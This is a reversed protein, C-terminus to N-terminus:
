KDMAGVKLTYITDVLGGDFTDHPLEWFMIGDLGEEMVYRTKRAISRKNDFTAFLKKSANYAYPAQATEDWYHTYGKRESLVADFDKFNVGSKFKGSQYLGNNERSVNEWIRAYFAAGIVIKEGPVGIRKLYQIANHASEKQRSTSFLATHHGTETSFGHVLDYSMLNVRDVHQMVVEWEVSEELFTQFGGAAFSIEYQPGLTERLDRVLTTFNQKDEPKFPHGPYGSIAPYEWDLDIGDAKFHKNLALVSQSFERIAEKSSFVDSCTKCGGWGGLSLLVKLNNNRQKLDVLKEITVSDRSNDVALRNGKLHCFSFIIHTLKEAPLSDVMEPGHSYYAIVNFNKKQQAHATASLAVCLLITIFRIMMLIAKGFTGGGLSLLPM